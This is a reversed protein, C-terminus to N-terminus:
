RSVVIYVPNITVTYPTAQRRPKASLAYYFSRQSDWTPFQVLLTEGPAVTEHITIERKHLQRNLRDLYTIEMCLATITDTASLNSVHLTEKSATLPKDYGALRVSSSVNERLTDGATATPAPAESRVEKLRGPLSTHQRRAAACLATLLILPLISKRM